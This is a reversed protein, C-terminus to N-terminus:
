EGTDEYLVLTPPILTGILAEQFSRKLNMYTLEAYPAIKKIVDTDLITSLAPPTIYRLNEFNIVIDVRVNKATETVRKILEKCNLRDMTGELEIHIKSINSDKSAKIDLYKDIRGSLTDVKEKISYLANPIFNDTEFAPFQGRLNKLAAAFPSLERDPIQNVMRRYGLNLFIRSVLRKRTPLIRKIISPFSYLRHYAWYFGDELAEPSLITPKFVVHRGDYHAWDKDIIRGEAAMRKHLRTGPLPTLINFLTLEVMNKELFEVTDEFITEDDHDFGFIMGANVMIGHDHFIKIQKEYEQARNFNKNANKLNEQSITEIGVFMSVCGSEAALRMLEPDNTMTLSGQSGWIKKLPKLASFLRKAYERNGAINDDVFAVFNGDLTEVEKIVEEIPRYRYTNGCFQTVSCFECNFPCGRTTQVCNETMYAGKKLLDRRQFPLNKLDPYREMKYFPKLDGVKFDKILAPWIEEAEGIVVSDAHEKAEDPLLSPHIGGLVVHVGRKRFRDAIEYARPALFTMVSIGVLDVDMDFDINDVSEDILIIEIDRPTLSAIATLSLRPFWFSKVAKKSFKFHSEQLEPSVLLLKM